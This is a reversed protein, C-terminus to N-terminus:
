QAVKAASVQANNCSPVREAGAAGLSKCVEVAAPQKQDLLYRKVLADLMSSLQESEGPRDGSVKQFFDKAKAPSGISSYTIILDRRAAAGLKGSTPLDAFKMSHEIAKVLSSTASPLGEKKRFVQGLQFQAYGWAENGPPPYKVVEEYSQRALDWKTPDTQSENFFLEGFALYALPIYRSQPWNKVLEFFSRRAQDLEGAREQELALYYMVEDICGSNPDTMANTCKAPKSDTVLRNGHKIAMKQAARIIMTAKRLEAEYKSRHSPTATGMMLKYYAADRVSTHELEVYGNFLQWFLVPRGPNDKPTSALQAERGQIETILIQRARPAIRFPRPDRVMAALEPEPVSSPPPPVAM